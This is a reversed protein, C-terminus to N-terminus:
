IPFWTNELMSAWATEYVRDVRQVVKQYNSETIAFQDSPSVLQMEGIVECHKEIAQCISSDDVPNIFWSSEYRSRTHIRKPLSTTQVIEGGQLVSVLSFYQEKSRREEGLVALLRQNPCAFFHRTGSEGILTFGLSDLVQRHYHYFTSEGVQLKTQPFWAQLTEPERRSFFAWLRRLLFRYIILNVVMAVMLQWATKALYIGGILCGLTVLPLIFVVLLCVVPHLKKEEELPPPNFPELLKPRPEATRQNIFQLALNCNNHQCFDSNEIKTELRKEVVYKKWCGIASWGFIAFFLALVSSWLVAGAFLTKDTSDNATFVVFDNASCGPYFEQLKTLDLSSIPTSSTSRHGAIQDASALEILKLSANKLSIKRQEIFELNAELIVVPQRAVDDPKQHDSILPLFFGRLEQNQNVDDSGFYVPICSEVAPRSGNLNWNFQYPVEGNELQEVSVNLPSQTTSYIIEPLCATYAAWSCYTVTCLMILIANVIHKRSGSYYRSELSGLWSLPNSTPSNNTAATSM